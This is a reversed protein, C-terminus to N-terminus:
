PQVFRSLDRGINSGIMSGTANSVSANRRNIDDITQSLAGLQVQAEPKKLLLQRGMEDRVSEPTKVRNWLNSGAALFGPISGTKAAAAASAIETAMGADLDGAAFERQATKSGQGLTDLRKLRAEGAVQAAFQRYSREDGFLMKLRDRLNDNKWMNLIGTAGGQSGAQEKIGQLVGMKFADIESRGLKALEDQLEFKDAHLASRGLQAADMMASPGSWADRAQKYISQGLEDKPSLDDLKSTLVHRVDHYDRALGPEGGVKAKTASDHLTRKITDLVSLPVEDGPQINSLEIPPEGRLNARKQAGSFTENARQLVGALDDDVKVTVGDLQKYYPAADAERLASLNKLTGGFEAGNTGLAQDASAIIRSGRKAMRDHIFDDVSQKTRGPLTALLDLTARTNSGGADAMVASNSLKNLRALAQNTPNTLGSTAVSGRADRAFAEALKERAYNAAASNSMQSAVIKGTAGLVGVAPTVVTSALGGLVAGRGTDKLVGEVDTATSDGAGSVAGYGAGAKGAQLANGIWGRVQNAGQAAVSSVGPIKAILGIPASAMGQTIGTTWPADQKREDNMGRLYDRSEIYSDRLSKDSTMALFPAAIAGGIEDGFGMTPGQMVSSLGQAMSGLISSNADRGRQYADNTKPADIVGRARAAGTPKRTLDAIADQQWDSSADKGATKGGLEAIAEDEWSM